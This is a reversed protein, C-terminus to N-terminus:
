WKRRHVINWVETAGIGYRQGLAAGGFKPSYPQYRDRIEQVQAWTLRASGHREGRPKRDKALSDAQNEAYTGLFLHSPNVCGPNDCRHCVCMGEPIPGVFLEYAVRHARLTRGHYGGAGIVGYGRHGKAGRWQWCDGTKHLQELFRDRLSKSKRSM